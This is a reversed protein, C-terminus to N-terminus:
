EKESTNRTPGSMRRPDTLGRAMAALAKQALRGDYAVNNDLARPKDVTPGGYCPDGCGADSEQQRLMAPPTLAAM